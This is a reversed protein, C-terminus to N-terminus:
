CTKYWYITLGVNIFLVFSITLFFLLCQGYFSCFVNDMFLVFPFTRTCDLVWVVRNTEEKTATFSYYAGNWPQIPHYGDNRCKTPRYASNRSQTRYCTGTSVLCNAPRFFLPNELNNWPILYSTLILVHSTSLCFVPMFYKALLGFTNWNTSKCSIIKALEEFM